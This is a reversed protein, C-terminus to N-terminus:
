ANNKILLNEVYKALVDVEINVLSNPRLTRFMTSEWTHPIIGVSFTGPRADIVTLSVGSVAISGKTVIYRSIKRPVSISLAVLTGGKKVGKVTGVADVHGQVIHGSLFTEPTAPLELNVTDWSKLTGINTRKFTEPTVDTSFSSATKRTITLCTGDVAISGGKKLKRVIGSSARVALANQSVKVITGRHTIIGTFM